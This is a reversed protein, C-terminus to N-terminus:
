MFLLNREADNTYGDRGKQDLAQQTSALHVLHKGLKKELADIEKHISEFKDSKSPASEFLTAQPLSTSVLNQLTIGTARYIVGRTYVESLKSKVLSIIAEPANTPSPLLITCASYELNQMRLFFTFKKPALNYRRAKTCVGEIHQSLQSFLFVLDNTAPHFTRTEQISAYITKLEQNLKMVFFGNLEKWIVEYNVSLNKHVWERSKGAFNGATQIGMKQLLSSTRPGIGWVKEIAFPALFEKATEQTIVTLGNPKVWKSAVKALVKNPALGITVSLGLEEYVEKKIREAIQLYTMKLPKDLGTLDAFCEDISYEEVEDAYRRVIAFMAKSYHLYSAYDGPLVIVDPFNRKLKQIPMARVVGLAKAEYSLASVIGREAGTVVPLGRLKPNKAIEIGVFFADGDMHLLVKERTKEKQVTHSMEWNYVKSCSLEISCFIKDLLM